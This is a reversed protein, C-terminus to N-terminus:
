RTPRYGFALANCAGSLGGALAAAWTPGTLALAPTVGLGLVTGVIYCWTRLSPPVSPPQADPLPTTM